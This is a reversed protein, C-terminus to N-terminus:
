VNLMSMPRILLSIYLVVAIDISYYQGNTKTKKSKKQYAHYHLAYLNTVMERVLIMIKLRNCTYLQKVCCFGYCCNTTLSPM